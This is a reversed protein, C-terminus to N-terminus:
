PGYLRELKLLAKDAADHEAERIRNCCNGIVVTQGKTPSTITLTCQFPAGANTSYNTVMQLETHHELYEKLRAKGPKTGTAPSIQATSVPQQQRLWLIASIAAEQEADKKKAQWESSFQRKRVTITCRHGNPTSREEFEEFAGGGVASNRETSHQFPIPGASQPGAGRPFSTPPPGATPPPSSPSSTMM